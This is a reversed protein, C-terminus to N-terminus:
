YGKGWDVTYKLDDGLAHRELNQLFVDAADKGHTVASVHPTITIKPHDWLPSTSPLPEEVFVDLVAGSIWGRELAHLLSEDDIVDGRGVNIFVAGPRCHQLANGSLLGRTAPTSPLLNVVYDGHGLAPALETCLMDAGPVPVGDVKLALTKMGFAQARQMVVQGIDGPGLMTLTLSSLKRELKGSCSLLNRNWERASQQSALALWNREHAIIQGVVYEAM